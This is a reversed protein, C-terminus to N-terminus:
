KDKCLSELCKFPCIKFNEDIWVSEKIDDRINGKILLNEVKDGTIKDLAQKFEKETIEMKDKTVLEELQDVYTLFNKLVQLFPLTVIELSYLVNCFQEFSSTNCRSM